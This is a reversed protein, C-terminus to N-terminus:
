PYGSRGLSRYYEVVERKGYLYCLLSGTIVIGVVFVVRLGVTSDPTMLSSLLASGGFAYLSLIAYLPRAWQKEAGLGYGLLVILLYLPVFWAVFPWFVALFQERSVEQDNIRYTGLDVFGGLLIALPILVLGIRAIYRCQAYTLDLLRPMPRLRAGSSASQIGM